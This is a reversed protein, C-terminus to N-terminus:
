TGALVAHHGRPGPGPHRRLYKAPPSRECLARNRYAILLTTKGVPPKSFSLSHRREQRADDQRPEGDYSYTM